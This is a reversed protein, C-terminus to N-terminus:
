YLVICNAGLNIMMMGANTWHSWKHLRSTVDCDIDRSAHVWLVYRRRYPRVHNRYHQLANDNIKLGGNEPSGNWANVRREFRGDKFSNATGTLRQQRVFRRIGRQVPDTCTSRHHHFHNHRWCSNSLLFWLSRRPNHCCLSKASGQVKTGMLEGPSTRLQLDEAHRLVPSASAHEEINGLRSTTRLGRDFPNCYTWYVGCGYAAMANQRPIDQLNESLAVVITSGVRTLRTDDSTILNAM